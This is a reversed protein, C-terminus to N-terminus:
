ISASLVGLAALFAIDARPSGDPRRKADMVLKATERGSASYGKLRAMSGLPRGFFLGGFSVATERVYGKATTTHLSLRLRNRGVRWGAASCKAAGVGWLEAPVRRPVNQLM